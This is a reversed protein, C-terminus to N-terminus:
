TSAIGNIKGKEACGYELHSSKFFLFSFMRSYLQIIIYYKVPVPLSFIVVADLGLIIV